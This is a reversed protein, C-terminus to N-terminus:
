HRRHGQCLVTLLRRGQVERAVDDDAEEGVGVRRQDAETVEHHRQAGAVEERVLQLRDDDDAVALVQAPLPAVEAVERGDVDEVHTEASSSRGGIVDTGRM